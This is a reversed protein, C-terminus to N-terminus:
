PLIIGSKENKTTLRERRGCYGCMWIEAPGEVVGEATVVRHGEPIDRTGRRGHTCNEQSVFRGLVRVTVDEPATEGAKARKLTWENMHGNPCIGVFMKIQPVYLVPHGPDSEDADPWTDVKEECQACKCFSSEIAYRLENINM